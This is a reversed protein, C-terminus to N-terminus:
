EPKTGLDVRCDEAYKHMFIEQVPKRRDLEHHPPPSELFLWGHGIAIQKCVPCERDTWPDEMKLHGLQESSM